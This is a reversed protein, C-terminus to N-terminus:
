TPSRKIQFHKPILVFTMGPRIQFLHIVCLSGAKLNLSSEYAHGGPMHLKFSHQGPAADFRAIDIRSPLTGWSRTDAQTISNAIFMGVDAFTGLLPDKKQLCGVAARRM